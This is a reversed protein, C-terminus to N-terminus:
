CCRCCECTNTNIQSLNWKRLREDIRGEIKLCLIDLERMIRERRMENTERAMEDIEWWKGRNM